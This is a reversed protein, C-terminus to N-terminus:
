RRNRRRGSVPCQRSRPAPHVFRHITENRVPPASTAQGARSRPDNGSPPQSGTRRNEAREAPGIPGGAAIPTVVTLLGALQYAANLTFPAGGSEGALAFPGLGFHAALAALDDGWGGVSCGRQYDSGGYGPKDPAVWGPNV